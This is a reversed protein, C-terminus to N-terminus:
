TTKTQLTHSFLTVSHCQLFCCVILRGNFCTFSVPSLLSGPLFAFGGSILGDAGRKGTRFVFPPGSPPVLVTSLALQGRRGQLHSISLTPALPGRPRAPTSNGRVCVCVCVCVCLARASVPTHLCAHLCVYLIMYVIMFLCMICTTLYACVCVCVCVCM